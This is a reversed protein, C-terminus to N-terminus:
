ELSPENTLPRVAEHRLTRSAPKQLGARSRERTACACIVAGFVVLPMRTPAIEKRSSPTSFISPMKWCGPLPAHFRDAPKLIDGSVVCGSPLLKLLLSAHGPRRNARRVVSAALMGQYYVLQTLNVPWACYFTRSQIPRSTIQPHRVM